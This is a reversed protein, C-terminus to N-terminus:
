RANQCLESVSDADADFLRRRQGQCTLVRVALCNRQFEQRGIGTILWSSAHHTPSGDRASRGTSRARAM